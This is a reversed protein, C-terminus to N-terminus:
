KIIFDRGKQLVGGIHATNILLGALGVAVVCTWLGLFRRFCLISFGILGAYLLLASKIHAQILPNPYSEISDMLVGTLISTLVAAHTFHHFRERVSLFQALHKPKLFFYAEMVALILIAGVTFQVTLLHLRGLKHVHSGYLSPWRVGNFYSLVLAGLLLWLLPYIFLGRKTQM